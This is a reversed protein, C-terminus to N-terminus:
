AHQDQQPGAVREEEPQGDNEEEEGEILQNDDVVNMTRKHGARVPDSLLRFIRGAAPRPVGDPHLATRGGTNASPCAEAKEAAKILWRQQLSPAKPRRLPRPSVRSNGKLM